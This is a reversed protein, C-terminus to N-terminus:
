TYPYNPKATVTWNLLARTNVFVRQAIVPTLTLYKLVTLCVETWTKPKEQKGILVFKPPKEDFLVFGLAVIASCEAFILYSNLLNWNM